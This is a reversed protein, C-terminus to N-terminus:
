HRRGLEVCNLLESFRATMRIGRTGEDDVKKAISLQNRDSERNFWGCIFEGKQPDVTNGDNHNDDTDNDHDEEEKDDVDDDDGM